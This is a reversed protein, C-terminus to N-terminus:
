RGKQFSLARWSATCTLKCCHSIPHKLPLTPATGIAIGVDAEALAAADNIGDGVMAVVNGGEMFREIEATKGQPLVEARVSRIGIQTAIALAATQNDGTLMGSQIGMDQLEAVVGAAEGRVRDALAIGGALTGNVALLMVTKGQAELERITAGQRVEIGRAHM